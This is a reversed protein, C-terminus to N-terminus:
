VRVPLAQVGRRHGQGSGPLDGQPGWGCQIAVAEAEAERLEEPTAPMADRSELCVMQVQQAGCRLASRAVDIAVNGGGVVICRGQIPDAEGGAVSRLFDVASM